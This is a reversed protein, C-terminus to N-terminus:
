KIGHAALLQRVDEPTYYPFHAADGPTPSYWRPEPLQVQVAEQPQPAAALMRELEAIGEELATSKWGEDPPGEDTVLQLRELLKQLKSADFKPKKPASADYGDCFGDFWSEANKQNDFFLTVRNGSMVGSEYGQLVVQARRSTQWAEFQTDYDGLGWEQWWKDFEARVQETSQTM